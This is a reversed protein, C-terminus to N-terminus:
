GEVKARSRQSWRLVLGALGGLVWATGALMAGMVVNSVALDRDFTQNAARMQAIRTEIAAPEQGNAALAQRAFAVVSEFWDPHIIHHYVWLFGLFAVVWTAVGLFLAALGALVSVSPARAYMAGLVIALLCPVALHPILVLFQGLALRTTEFGLGFLVLKLAISILAAIAGLRLARGIM